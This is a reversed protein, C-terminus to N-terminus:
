IGVLVHQGRGSGTNTTSGSTSHGPLSVWGLRVRHGLPSSLLRGELCGRAPNASIVAAFVGTVGPRVRCVASVRMARLDIAHCGTYYRALLEVRAVGSRNAFKNNISNALRGHQTVSESRAGVMLSIVGSVHIVRVLQGHQILGGNLGNHTNRKLHELRTRALMLLGPLQGGNLAFIRRIRHRQQAGQTHVSQNTGHHLRRHVTVKLTTLRTSSVQRHHEQTGTRRRFM